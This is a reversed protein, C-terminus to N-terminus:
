SNPERVLILRAPSSWKFGFVKYFTVLRNFEGGDYPSPALSLTVGERDADQCIRFMVKTGLGMSRAELRTHVRNIMCHPNDFGWPTGNVEMVDAICNFRDGLTPVIEYYTTKM